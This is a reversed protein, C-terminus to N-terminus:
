AKGEQPTPEQDRELRVFGASYVAVGVMGSALM